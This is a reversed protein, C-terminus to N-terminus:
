IQTLIPCAAAFNFKSQCHIFKNTYLQSMLLFYLMFMLPSWSEGLVKFDWIQSYVMRINFHDITEIM